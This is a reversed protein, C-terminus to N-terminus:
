LYFDKIWLIIFTLDIGITNQYSAPRSTPTSATQLQVCNAPFWGVRIPQDPNKFVDFIKISSIFLLKQM